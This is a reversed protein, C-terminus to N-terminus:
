TFICIIKIIHHLFKVKWTKFSGFDWRVSSFTGTTKSFKSCSKNLEANFLLSSKYCNNEGWWRRSIPACSGTSHDWSEPSLFLMIVQAWAQSVLRLLMALAWSNTTWARTHTHTCVSFIPDWTTWASRLGLLYSLTIKFELGEQRWRLAPFVLCVVGHRTSSGM